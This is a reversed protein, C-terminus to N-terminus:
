NRTNMRVRSNSIYGGCNRNCYTANDSRASSTVNLKSNGLEGRSDLRIASNAVDRHTLACNRKSTHRSLTINAINSLGVAGL